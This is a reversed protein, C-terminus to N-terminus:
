YHLVSRYFLSIISSNLSIHKNCVSPLIILDDIGSAAFLQLAPAAHYQATGIRLRDPRHLARCFPIPHICMIMARILAAAFPLKLFLQRFLPRDVIFIQFEVDLGGAELMGAQEGLLRDVPVPHCSQNLVRASRDFHEIEKSVSAACRHRARRCACLYGM